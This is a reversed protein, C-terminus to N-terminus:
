RWFGGAGWAGIKDLGIGVGWGSPVLTVAGTAVTQEVGARAFDYKGKANIARVEVNGKADQAGGVLMVRYTGDLLGSFAVSVRSSRAEAPTWPSLVTGRPTIVIVQPCDTVGADCSVKAEFRGGDANVADYAPVDGSELRPLLAAILKGPKDIAKADALAAERDGMVRGRCRLAEAVAEENKPALEALSRWHACARREDGISEFARAARVHVKVSRADTESLADVAAVATKGDGLVAAAYSLLERAIPLDPDLEVFTKAAALADVFRGRRLLGRILAEHAKRSKDADAVAKRLKGLEDDGESRWTENGVKLIAADAEPADYVVRPPPPPPPLPSTSGSNTLTIPITITAQGGEPPEFQASRARAAMCATTSSDISGAPVANASVVQGNAGIRLILRVAGQMDPNMALGRNYCARFGARMGAVVRAANSVTGGTVTASASANGRPAAVKTESSGVATGGTNGIGALGGGAAGPTIAGGGGGFVDAAPSKDAAKAAAQASPGAGFGSDTQDGEKRTTRQIGFEAFMQENELVLLSTHRSMVHFRRSLDVVEKIASAEPSGQLEAIRTQAWLRPVLPNQSSAQEAWALPRRLSFVKDGLRGTLKVEGAAPAALRGVVVVEQGLRLNPLVRPYIETFAPPLEVAAATVVPKRLGQAIDDIRDDLSEGTIVREYSAGLTSAVGLLVVEDVSRGAGLLRLDVKKRSLAAGVRASLKEFSLEGSTPAGDGIYVIQGAGNPELREAAQLLAGAPDSSGSPALKSLWGNASALESASIGSLGKEPYTTCASDCALLVFKEDPDMQALVGSVLRAEGQLTDKSQSHSTDIVFARDRRTFAPAPLDAPPEVVLRAAFYGKGPGLDALTKAAVKLKDDAFEGWAPVYASIDAAPTPEREYSLTFDRAPAFAKAEFTLTARKPDLTGRTAYGPTRLDRVQTRTDTLTVDMSFQGIRVARDAGLSLPYTYRVRGGEESLAQNYALVVKRSGKAPIPFIKLSFDAGSVWELLAPDRPRVTDEVIANFIQAARKRELVEGEVLKDGVWLALRSISADPPLPFVYRGELVRDTENEFVEEVETRAFGDRVVAHVAHSALKVGGVVETTGPVRATMTGFGRTVQNASAPVGDRPIRGGDILAGAWGVTREPAKGKAVTAGDGSRLELPQGSQTKLTFRGRRVAVDAREATAVRIVVSTPFSPDLTGTADGIKVDPTGASSPSSELTLAGKRLEIARPAADSLAVESRESLRVQLSDGASLAVSAGDGTRVLAALRLAAGAGIPECGQGDANCRVAASGQETREVDGVPLSVQEAKVEWPAPPPPPKPRCSPAALVFVAVLFASRRGLKM